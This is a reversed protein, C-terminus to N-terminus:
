GNKWKLWEYIDYILAIVLKGLAIVLKGVPLAIMTIIVGLWFSPITFHIDM